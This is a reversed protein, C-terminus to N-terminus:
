RLSVPTPGSFLAVFRQGNYVTIVEDLNDYRKGNEGKKKEEVLTFNTEPTNGSLALIERVTLTKKKTTFEENDVFFTTHPDPNGDGSKRKIVFFQERGPQGLDVKQDADILEDDPGIEGPGTLSLSLLHTEPAKGVLALLERGTPFQNPVRYSGENIRISYYRKKTNLNFQEIGAPTIDFPEDAEVTLDAADAVVLTLYFEDPSKGVLALLERGTPADGPADFIQDDIRIKDKRPNHEHSM